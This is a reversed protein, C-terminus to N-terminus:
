QQMLYGILDLSQKFHPSVRELCPLKGIIIGIKWRPLGM